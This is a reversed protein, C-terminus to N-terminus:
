HFTVSGIPAIGLEALKENAAKVAPSLVDRRLNSPNHKRGSSTHIAV